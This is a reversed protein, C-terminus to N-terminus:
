WKHLKGKAPPFPPKVGTPSDTHLSLHLWEWGGSCNEQHGRGREGQKGGFYVKSTSSVRTKTPLDLSIMHGRLFGLVKWSSTVVSATSPSTLCCDTHTVWTGNSWLAAHFFPLFFIADTSRLLSWGLQCNALFHSAQIIGHSVSNAWCSCSASFHATTTNTKQQM